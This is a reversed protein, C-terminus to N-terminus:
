KREEAEKLKTEFNYSSDLKHFYNIYDHCIVNFDILYFLPTCLPSSWEGNLGNFQPKPMYEIPWVRCVVVMVVSVYAMYVPWVPMCVPPWVPICMCTSWWVPWVCDPFAACSGVCHLDCQILSTINAWVYLHCCEGPFPTLQTQVPTHCASDDQGWHPSPRGCHPPGAHACGCHEGDVRPWRPHRCHCRRPLSLPSPLHRQHHHHHPPRTTVSAGRGDGAGAGWM